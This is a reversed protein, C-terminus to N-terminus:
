ASASRLRFSKTWDLWAPAGGRPGGGAGATRAVEVAGPVVGRESGEAGGIVVVRGLQPVREVLVVVSGFM